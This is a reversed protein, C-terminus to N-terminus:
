LLFSGCQGIRCFELLVRSFYSLVVLSYFRLVILSKLVQHLVFDRTYFSRIVERLKNFRRNSNIITVVLMVYFLLTVLSPFMETFGLLLVVVVLGLGHLKVSNLTPRLWRLFLYVSAL